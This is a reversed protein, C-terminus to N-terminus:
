PFLFVMEVLRPKCTKPDRRFATRHPLSAWCVRPIPGREQAAGKKSFVMKALWVNPAVKNASDRSDETTNKKKKTKRIRMLEDPGPKLAEISRHKSDETPPLNSSCSSPMATESSPECSPFASKASSITSISIRSDRM